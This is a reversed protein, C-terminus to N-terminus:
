RMVATVVATVVLFLEIFINGSEQRDPVTREVRHIERPQYLISKSINHFFGCYTIRTRRISGLITIYTILLYTIFVHSIVFM